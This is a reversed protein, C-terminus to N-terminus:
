RRGSPPSYCNKSQPGTEPSAPTRQVGAPRRRWLSPLPTTPAKPLEM